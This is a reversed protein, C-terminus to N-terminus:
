PQRPTDASRTQLTADRNFNFRAAVELQEAERRMAPSFQGFPAASHVIAIARRDLAANGSSQLVQTTLVRGDQNVTIRMQLEGYLKQGGLSPFNETGKDEIRHRLKDYYVAYPVEKTEPGVYRRRPQRGQDQVQPAIEAVAGSLQHHASDQAQAEAENRPTQPAVQTLQEPRLQTLVPTPQTPMAAAQRQTDAIDDGQQVTAAPPLPTTTRDQETQGGGALAYQALFKASDRHDPSPTNVLIVEMPAHDFMRNWGAPDAWRVSLLALHILASVGLALQLPSISRLSV